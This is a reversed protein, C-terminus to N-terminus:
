SLENSRTCFRANCTLDIAAEPWCRSLWALRSELHAVWTKKNNRQKRAMTKKKKKKQLNVRSFLKLRLDFNAGDFYRLWYYNHRQNLRRDTIQGRDGRGWRM